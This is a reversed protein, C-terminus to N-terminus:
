GGPIWSEKLLTNKREWEAQFSPFRYTDEAILQRLVKQCAANYDVVRGSEVVDCPKYCDEESAFACLSDSPLHRSIDAYYTVYADLDTYFGLEVGLHYQFAGVRMERRVAQGTCMEYWGGGRHIGPIYVYRGYNLGWGPQNAREDDIEVLHSMEHLLSWVDREPGARCGLTVVGNDDVTQGEVDVDLRLFPNSNFFAAEISALLSEQEEPLKDSMKIM